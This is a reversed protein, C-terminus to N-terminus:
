KTAGIKMEEIDPTKNTDKKRNHPHSFLILKLFIWKLKIMKTTKNNQKNYYYTNKQHTEAHPVFFFTLVTM